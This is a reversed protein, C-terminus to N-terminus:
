HWATGQVCMNGSTADLVDILLNYIQKVGIISITFIMGFENNNIRFKVKM